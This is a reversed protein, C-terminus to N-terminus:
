NLMNPKAVLVPTLGSKTVSEHSMGAMELAAEKRDKRDTELQMVIDNETIIPYSGTANVYGAFNSFVRLEGHAQRDHSRL